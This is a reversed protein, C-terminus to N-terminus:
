DEANVVAREPKIIEFDSVAEIFKAAVPEVQDTEPDFWVYTLKVVNLLEEGRLIHVLLSYSTRGFRTIRVAVDILDDAKAPTRFDVEAHRVWNDGGFHQMFGGLMDGEGQPGNDAMLARMYETLGVDAFVLYNANFVIGQLDCEAYRVRIPTILRFGDRLNKQETM